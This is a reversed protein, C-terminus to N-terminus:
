SRDVARREKEAVDYAHMVQSVYLSPVEDGSRLRRDIRGPGWNYAALATPVHQYRDSLKRLYATGLKVNVIPDFLTDPGRWTVGFEAALEEGTSPLIQMLGMAGVPSLALHHGASEVRIVAMVLAPDLGHRQSEEVITNALESLEHDALATHRGRLQELIQSRPDEPTPPAPAPPAVAVPSSPRNAQPIMECSLASLGGCVLLSVLRRRM